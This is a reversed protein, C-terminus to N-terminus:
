RPQKALPLLAQRDARRVRSPCWGLTIMASRLWESYSALQRNVVHEAWESRLRVGSFGIWTCVRMIWGASAAIDMGVGWAGPMTSQIATSYAEADVSALDVLPAGYYAAGWDIPYVTVDGAPESRARVNKSALDGHVVTVPAAGIIWSADDIRTTCVEVMSRLDSLLSRSRVSIAANAIGDALARDARELSERYRRVGGQELPGLSSMTSCRAHFTALWRGTAEWDAQKAPSYRRTGVNGVFLWAM